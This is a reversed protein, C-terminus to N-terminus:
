KYMVLKKLSNKSRSGSELRLRFDSFVSPLMRAGEVYWYLQGCFRTIDSKIFCFRCFGKLFIGHWRSCLPLCLARRSCQNGWREPKLGAFVTKNEPNVQIRLAATLVFQGVTSAFSALFANFPFSSILVCYTFILIGTLMIFLLYADILKLRRPTRKNYSSILISFANRTGTPDPRSSGSSSHSASHKPAM